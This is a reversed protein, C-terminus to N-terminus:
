PVWGGDIGEEEGGNRAGIDSLGDDGRRINTARPM